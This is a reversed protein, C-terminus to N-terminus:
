KKQAQWSTKFDQIVKKLEAEGSEEWMKKERIQALFKKANREAYEALKEEFEKIKEIAVDDMFGQTLAYLVVVQNELSVPSYQTQKLAEVARKGRELQKKTAEDLDSGFQTFAELERYQALDLKLTGAVKKMAKIQAAGGVRSVSLGVNM